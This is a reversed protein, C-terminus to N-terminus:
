QGLVSQRNGIDRVRGVPTILYVTEESLVFEGIYEVDKLHPDDRVARKDTEGPEQLVDPGTNPHTHFSAVIEM